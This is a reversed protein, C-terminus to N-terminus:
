LDITACSGSRPARGMLRKGLGQAPREVCIWSAWAFPLTLLVTVVAIVFPPTDPARLVHALLQGVPWGYLYLGYSVDNRSGIAKGRLHTAAFILLYAFPLPAVIDSVGIAASGVVVAGAAAALLRHDPVHDRLMFLMSGAVFCAAPRLGIEIGHAISVAGLHDLAMASSLVVLLGASGVVRVRTRFVAIIGALIYCCFEYALTWAVGNWSGPFPVDDLTGPIDPTVIKLGLNSVVFQLAVAFDWRTEGFLLVSAPAFVLATVLMACLYAPYIRLFRRVLFSPFPLRVASGTILFGSVAFFAAVAAAGLEIDGLHPRPEWGGIQWAHALIVVCALGVRMLNLANRRPDFTHGIAEARTLSASRAHVPQIEAVPGVSGSAVHECPDVVGDRLMDGTDCM